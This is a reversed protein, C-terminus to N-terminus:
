VAGAAKLLDAALPGAQYPPSFYAVVQAQPNILILAASHDMSYSDPTNGPVKEYAIALEHAVRALEPEMATAAAFAPDFYHVYTALEKPQDRQPDVSLFLVQLDLKDGLQKRTQKLTALTTPCVDPCHTFGPFIVTWRNLLRARTYPRGDDGLLAFESLARPQPLLLGTQLAVPGPAFWWAAAILGAAGAVAAVLLTIRSSL